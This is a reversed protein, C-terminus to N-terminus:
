INWDNIEERKQKEAIMTVATLYAVKAIVSRGPKEPDPEGETIKGGIYTSSNAVIGALAQGAFYDLLTMGDQEWVIENNFLIISNPRPYAPGGDDSKM